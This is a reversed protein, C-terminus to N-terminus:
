IEKIDILVIIDGKETVNYIEDEKIRPIGKGHFTYYQKKKLKLEHLSIQLDNIIPIHSINFLENINITLHFIINNNEDIVINEPLTPICKVIINEEFELESHWLPVYYIKEQINLKFIREGFLEQLSPNLIYIQVDKYKDLIINKVNDILEDSIHLILKHKLLFNYVNIATNKEIGEFIHITINEYNKLIYHVISSLFPTKNLFLQLFSSYTHIEEKEEQINDIVEKKLLEYAETIKQFYETSEQSNQHKDPHYQLALRYYKKKLNDLSIEKGSTISFIDFADELFM